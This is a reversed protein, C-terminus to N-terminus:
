LERAHYAAGAHAAPPSGWAPSASGLDCGLAAFVDSRYSRFTACRPHRLRSRILAPVQARAAALWDREFRDGIFLTRQAPTGTVSLIYRVGAPHPKLRRVNPDCASVTLDSKLGLADLKAEAPYDSLVAIGRGSRRLAEFLREVGAYRSSALHRLPRRDMWEAVVERVLEPTADVDAAVDVFQSEVFTESEMEALRERHRRYSRVIRLDRAGAGALASGAMELAMRLRLRSQDYLTGDVDFIVLDVARWDVSTNM